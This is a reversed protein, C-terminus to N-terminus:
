SNRTLRALLDRCVVASNYKFRDGGDLLEALKSPTVLLSEILEGDELIPIFSEPLLLDYIVLRERHRGESTTYDLDLRKIERLGALEVATLGAEEAGEMAVTELLSMGHPQGGAVMTDLHLPSARRDAARRALWIKSGEESQAIGNIHVKTGLLGFVRLLSRDVTGIVPGDWEIRISMAEARIPAVLDRASLVDHASAFLREMEAQVGPLVFRGDGRVSAVEAEDLLRATAARIAGAPTGFGDIFVPIFDESHM